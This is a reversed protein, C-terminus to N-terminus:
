SLRELGERAADSSGDVKLAREYAIRAEDRMEKMEYCSGLLCFARCNGPSLKVAEILDALALDVRRRKNVAIQLEARKFLADGREIESLSKLAPPSLASDLSKIASSNHGQLSLALAKLIHSAADKPDLSLAKEAELSASKALSLTTKPNPSSRARALFQAGQVFHRKSQLTARGKQRYNALARKPYIYLSLLVILTFLLLLGQVFVDTNM